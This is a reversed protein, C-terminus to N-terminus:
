AGTRPAPAPPGPPRLGLSVLRCSTSLAWCPSRTGTLAAPVAGAAGAAGAPVCAARPAAVTRAPTQAPSRWASRERSRSTVRQPFHSLLRTESVSNEVQHWKWYFSLPWPIFFAPSLKLIQGRQGDLSFSSAGQFQRHARLFGRPHTVPGVPEATPRVTFM